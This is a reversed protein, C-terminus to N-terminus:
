KKRSLIFCFMKRALSSITNEEAWKFTHGWGSPAETDAEERTIYDGSLINKESIAFAIPILVTERESQIPLWM